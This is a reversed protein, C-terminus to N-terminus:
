ASRMDLLFKEVCDRLNETESKLGEAVRYMSSSMDGTKAAATSVEGIRDVISRNGAAVGGVARAIERTAAGQEEVASAINAVVADVSHITGVAQRIASSVDGSAKQVATIQRAIEDTARTTQNALSKVENAVVAFGKGAEGARAAEITANLALLNTQSAIDTILNVIEGIRGTAESLIGMTKAAGEIGRVADATIHTSDEVQRSIEGISAGLEEAATAVAEIDLSAQEASHNVAQSEDRTRDAAQQLTDSSGFVEEASGSLTRLMSSVATDFAATLKERLATRQRRQERAEEAERELERNRKMNQQFTGVAGAISGIEDTREKHPVEVDLRDAALEDIVAAIDVLPRTIQRIIAFLIVVLILNSLIIIVVGSFIASQRAAQKSHDSVVIHLTAIQKDERVVSQHIMSVSSPLADQELTTYDIDGAMKKSLVKGTDDTVWAAEFDPDAALANTLQQLVELNFDWIPQVMAAAQLNAVLSARTDVAKGMLRDTVIVSAVTSIILFGSVVSAIVAILKVAITTKKPHESM